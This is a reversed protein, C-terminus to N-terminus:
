TVLMGLAVVVGIAVLGTGLVRARLAPALAFDVPDAPTRTVPDTVRRNCGPLPGGM